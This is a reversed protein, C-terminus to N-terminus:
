WWMCLVNAWWCRILGVNVASCVIHHGVITNAALTFPGWWLGYWLLIHHQQQNHHHSSVPWEMPTCDRVFCIQESAGSSAAMSQVVCSATAWLVTTNASLKLNSRMIVCVVMCPQPTAASYSSLKLRSSPWKRNDNDWVFCIQEGAGSSASM